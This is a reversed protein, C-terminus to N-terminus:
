EILMTIMIEKRTNGLSVGEKERMREELSENFSEIQTDATNLFKQIM